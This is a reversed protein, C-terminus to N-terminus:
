DKRDTVSKAYEIARECIMEVLAEEQLHSRISPDKLAAMTYGTMASVSAVLAAKEPSIGRSVYLDIQKRMTRQCFESTIYLEERNRAPM